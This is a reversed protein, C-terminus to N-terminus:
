VAQANVRFRAIQVDTIGNIKCVVALNEDVIQCCFGQFRDQFRADTNCWVTKIKILAYFFAQFYRIKRRRAVWEIQNGSEKLNRVSNM